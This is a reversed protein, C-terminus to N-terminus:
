CMAFMVIKGQLAGAVIHLTQGCALYCLLEKDKLVAFAFLIKSSKCTSM